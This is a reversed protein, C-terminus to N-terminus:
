GLGGGPSAADHCRARGTGHLRPVDARRRGQGPAASGGLLRRVLLCGAVLGGITLLASGAPPASPLAPQPPLCCGPLPSRRARVGWTTRHESSAPQRTTRWTPCCTPSTRAWGSCPAAPWWGRRHIPTAPCGWSWSPRCLASASSTRCPRSGADVEPGPQVGVCCWGRRPARPGARWGNALSLVVCAALATIAAVRVTSAAVAGSPIPKDTRGVAADRHRDLYDNSWGVSLQGTLVAAAVLVCGGWGRGVSAAFATMVATVTATPAAHTATVLARVLQPTGASAM